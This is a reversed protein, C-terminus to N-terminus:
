GFLQISDDGVLQDQEDEDEEEDSEDDNEKMSIKQGLLSAFFEDIQDDNWKLWPRPTDFNAIPEQVHFRLKRGKSAKNDVNKRSNLLPPM